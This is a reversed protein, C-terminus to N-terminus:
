ERRYLQIKADGIPPKTEDAEVLRLLHVRSSGDGAVITRGDLAVACSTTQGDATLLALEKGSELDWVRLTKDWSASVARRGDPTIAVGNVDSSHGELTRLSQGSELDWVRLTKDGSASVARRGDPTIAVGNVGFSHGELKRLSQGSELDWVRLTKDWSASVARRGDPTIAVGSV